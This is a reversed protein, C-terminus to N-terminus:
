MSIRSSTLNQLHLRCLGNFETNASLVSIVCAEDQMRQSKRRRQLGGESVWEESMCGVVIIFKLRAAGGQRCKIMSSFAPFTSM